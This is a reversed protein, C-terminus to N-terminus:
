PRVLGKKVGEIYQDKVFASLFGHPTTTKELTERKAEAIARAIEPRGEGLSMFLKALPHKDLATKAGEVIRELMNWTDEDFQISRPPEVGETEMRGKIRGMTYATDLKGALSELEERDENIAIPKYNEHQKYSEMNVLAWEVKGGPKKEQSWMVIQYRNEM